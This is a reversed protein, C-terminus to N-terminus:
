LVKSLAELSRDYRYSIDLHGDDFEEHVVRAGAAKLEKALMRAGLDLNWEDKTGCDVFVLKLKRAAKRYREVKSVMRVPDWALWRRWVAEDIEGTTLDFPLDVRLPKRPNPSYAAAMAIINLVKLWEFSKKPAKQFAAWWKELSGYKSVARVVSPFDPLYCYEFASDGSHDALAGFVDPHRLGHVIAGFGGSSKGLVARHAAKARTRFARDVYPVLEKILHTEYRGHASSDLYQSGGYRTFCDPMVAIMPQIRGAAILRDMRLHLPETWGSDNLLMTGRGTFGTLVYASPYRRRTASPDDYGAPLYVPVTRVSPDGLPNGRLVKSEFKVLVVRGAKRAKVRASALAGGLRARARRAKQSATKPAM